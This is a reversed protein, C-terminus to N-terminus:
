WANFVHAANVFSGAINEGTSIEFDNILISRPKGSPRTHSFSYDIEVSRIKGLDEFGNFWKLENLGLSTRLENVMDLTKYAEDDM